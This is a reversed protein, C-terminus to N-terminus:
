QNASASLYMHPDEVAHREFATRAFNRCTDETISQLQILGRM